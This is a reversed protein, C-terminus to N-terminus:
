RATVVAIATAGLYLLVAVIAIGAAVALNRALRKV